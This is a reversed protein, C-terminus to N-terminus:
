ILEDPAIERLYQVAKHYKNITIDIEEYTTNRNFSFRIASQAQLDSRGLAKLVFSPENNKSNCASGNAVCLPELMLILSEGDIGSISVNLIGPYKSKITGNIEIGPISKLGSWLRKHLDQMILYDDESRELALEAAVGFGIIQHVPLTGPRIWNEQEGGYHLPIVGCGAAKRMYLAGIGQPGYFKHASISLLDIPLQDLNLSIKGISQAADTHFLINKERCISGIKVIDQTVGTENNVHMISVLQTEKKIAEKLDALKLLGSPDPMLRTVEFGEKELYDFAGLVAKHETAMTIIHRGLHSRFRAAGIIALNNSETAGSTWTLNDKNTHLLNALKQRAIEIDHMANRGAYNLSSPNGMVETNNLCATMASVVKQDIPMTAASDLYILNDTTRKM